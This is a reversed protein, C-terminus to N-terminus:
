RSSAVPPVALLYAAMAALDEEPLVALNEQVEVMSGGATDFDPMFGTQFFYVLDAATWDGIGGAGTTINPIRGRGEPNPAGGLWRATDMAGAFNRPTHCEGCHGPGEVLYQGRAISPDSTDVAVAVAPAPDLFALKWLGLGRRFGYPFDLDNAAARGAVPPLTGIFAFLDAVDAPTMRAYSAYPFAPYLHGGDPGVGRLMANAFDAASWGGIGDNRHPSINPVVFTGFDTALLRGGGLKPREDAEADAAAHCSACGGVRFVAEGRAPDGAPLAAVEAAPLARPMTAFWFGAAGVVALGALALLLRRV